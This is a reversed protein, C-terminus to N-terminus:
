NLEFVTYTGSFNGADPAVNIANVAEAVQYIAGGFYHMTTGTDDVHQTNIRAATYTGADQPNYVTLDLSAVKGASNGVSNNDMRISTTNVRAVHGVGADSKVFRIGQYYGTAEYSVGADNSYKVGFGTNNTTVTVGSFIIQTTKTIGTIAVSSVSSFTGSSLVAWAGGGADEFAPQAGAGASTLVQGDNGPAILVPNTSSDFSIISGDVGSAMKSLSVANDQLKSTTINADLIKSTTVNADLIKSTTVANSALKDASVSADNPVGIQPAKTYTVVINDTGIPPASTFTIATGSINFDDVPTQVVGSIRVLASFTSSAVSLTFAVTSANGSFKDLAVDALNTGVLFNSM